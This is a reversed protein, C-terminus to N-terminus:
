VGRASASFRHVFHFTADQDAEPFVHAAIAMGRPFWRQLSGPLIREPHEKLECIQSRVTYNNGNLSLRMGFKYM